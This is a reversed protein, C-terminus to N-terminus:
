IAFKVFEAFSMSSISFFTFEELKAVTAVDQDYVSKDLLGVM